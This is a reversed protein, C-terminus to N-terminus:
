VARAVRPPSAGEASYTPRPEKHKDFLWRRLRRRAEFDATLAVRSRLAVAAEVGDLTKETGEFLAEALERKVGLVPLAVASFSADGVMFLDDPGSKPDGVLLLAAARGAIVCM